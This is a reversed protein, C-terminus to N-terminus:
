GNTSGIKTKIVTLLKEVEQVKTRLDAWDPDDLDFGPYRDRFYLDALSLALPEAAPLLEPSRREVEELLRMLDHTKELFWGCRLLEAKFIKEVVEALKSRCLHCALKQEVLSRIGDLDSEALFLWDAPNNSDTKRPLNWGKASYLKFSIIASPRKKRWVFRHLPFSPSHYGQAYRGCHGASSPPQQSRNRREMPLSACISTVIPGLTAEHTRALSIFLM